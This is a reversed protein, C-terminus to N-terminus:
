LSPPGDLQLVECQTNRTDLAYHRVECSGVKQVLQLEICSCSHMHCEKNQLYCCGALLAVM